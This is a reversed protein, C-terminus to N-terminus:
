VAAVTDRQPGSPQTADGPPVALVPCRAVHLLRQTVSGLLLTGVAGRGRTGVVILEAGLEAAVDAIQDAVHSTLGPVVHIRTVLGHEEVIARVQHQIKATLGPEDAFVDQGSARGSMLKEAVHVVHLEARDRTAAEVAHVLARDAHESGDTAWVVETFM